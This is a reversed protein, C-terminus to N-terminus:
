GDEFLLCACVEKGVVLARLVSLQIWVCVTSVCPSSLPAQLLLSVLFFLSFGFVKKIKEGRVCNGLERGRVFDVCVLFFGHVFRLAEGKGRRVRWGKRRGGLVPRQLSM